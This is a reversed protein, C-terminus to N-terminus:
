RLGRWAPSPQLATVLAAPADDAVAIMNDFPRLVAAAREVWEGLEAGTPLRLAGPQSLRLLGSAGGQVPMAARLRRSRASSPSTAATHRM